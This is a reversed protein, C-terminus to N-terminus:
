VCLLLFCRRLVVRCGPVCRPLQCISRQAACCSWWTACAGCVRWICCWIKSRNNCLYRVFAGRVEAVPLYHAASRLLVVLNRLQQVGARAAKGVGPPVGELPPVLDGDLIHMLGHPAKKAKGAGGGPADGAALLAAASDAAASDASASDATASDATAGSATAGRATATRTRTGGATASRQPVDLGMSGAEVPLGQARRQQALRMAHCISAVRAESLVVQTRSEILIQLNPWM